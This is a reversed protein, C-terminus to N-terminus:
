KEDGQMFDEWAEQELRDKALEAADTVMADTIGAPLDNISVIDTLDMDGSAPYCNEPLGYIVAPEYDCDYEVRVDIEHEEGDQDLVYVYSKFESM